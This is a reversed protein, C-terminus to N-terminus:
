RGPKAAKQFKALQQEFYILHRPAPDLEFVKKIWEIAKDHEGM